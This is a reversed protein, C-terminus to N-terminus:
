GELEGPSLLLLGKEGPADTYPESLAATRAGLSGDSFFKVGWITVRGRKWGAGIGSRALVELHPRTLISNITLKVDGRADARSLIRLQDPTTMDHVATVGLSHYSR